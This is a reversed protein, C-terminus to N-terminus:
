WEKMQEERIKRADDLYELGTKRLRRGGLLKRSYDALGEFDYPPGTTVARDDRATELERVVLNRCYTPLDVDEREAVQCLRRHTAVDLKITVSRSDADSMSVEVVYDATLM